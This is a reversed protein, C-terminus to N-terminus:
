FPLDDPNFDDIDVEFNSTSNSKQSSELINTADNEFTGVDSSQINEITVNNYSQNILDSAQELNENNDDADLNENRNNAKKQLEADNPDPYVWRKNSQDSEDWYPDTGKLVREMYEVSSLHPAKTPKYVDRWTINDELWEQVVRPDDYLKSPNRPMISSVDKYTRNTGPITSDVVVINLDAGREVHTFDGNEQYFLKLAPILKDHVGQQKFNHKFRWFKVGDKSNGKDIGRIIYFKKAEWAKSSKFLKDNEEKILLQEKNMEEKKLFKGENNKLPVQKVLLKKSEDCFPCYPAVMIPKGNQDTIVNGNEDRKPIKPDNHAPCYIKRWRKKGNSDNVQVQHFFATEIYEKGKKPPLIRFTESSHRPTFYKKLIEERNLSKKEKQHSEDYNKFMKNIGDLNNGQLVQDNENLNEM